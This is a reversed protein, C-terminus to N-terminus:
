SSYIAFSTTSFDAAESIHLHKHGPIFTLGLEAVCLDSQDATLHPRKNTKVVKRTLGITLTPHM